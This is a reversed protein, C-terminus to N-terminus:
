LFMTMYHPITIKKGSKGLNSNMIKYGYKVEDKKLITDLSSTSGKHSKVEIPVVSSEKELLFEIESSSDDRKFYFLPINKKLLFDAILNEYIGGKVPGTLTDNIL